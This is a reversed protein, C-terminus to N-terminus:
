RALLTFPVTYLKGNGLFQVWLKYTGAPLAPVQMAMFPGSKGEAPMAMNMGSSMSTDADSGGRLTPHLHVYALTSTNIFVVHAAAGLYPSLDQAPEDNEVVTLYLHKPRGAPLTTKSLRVSYPGALATRESPAFSPRSNSVPEASDLTFRFVQQSIGHPTTDAYVYYRHNPEKTFDQWFTGTRADFDPHLHDFTAFDDRVIIMHMVHEMDLDYDLIPKGDVTFQRVQLTGSLRDPHSLWFKASVRPTGGLLAFVGPQEVRGAAGRAVGAAYIAALLGAVLM